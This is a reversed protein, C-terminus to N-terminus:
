TQGLVDGCEQFSCCLDQTYLETVQVRESYFYTAVQRTVQPPPGPAPDAQQGQHIISLLHVQHHLPVLAPALFTHATM